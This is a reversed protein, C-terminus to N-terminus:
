KRQGYEIEDAPLPLIYKSKQFWPAGEITAEDRRKYYYFLVGECPFERRYEQFIQEQIDGSLHGELNSLEGRNLMLTMVLREATQPDAESLAEAAILYLEPLRILPHRYRFSAPMEDTQWLKICQMIPATLTGENKFLYLRRWDLPSPYLGEIHDPEFHLYVNAGTHSITQAAGELGIQQLVFVQETSFTRDRLAISGNSIADYTLWTFHGSGIVEQACAAANAQDGMYHYLRAMSARVAYYNLRFQRKSLYGDDDLSTIERGTVLPDSLRLLESAEQMDKLISEAVASVTSQPTTNYSYTTVYPIAPAGPNAKCSPAFLRLLDFYLFGRLGLAEGLIVNYNDKSFLGRDATRSHEILHNLNAITTYAGNWVANIMAEATSETYNYERFYPYPRASIDRVHSYVAGLVDVMGFTMECGYLSASTMDSYVGALVDKFGAERAYLVDADIQTAPKVNLWEECSALACAFFPILILYSYKKM